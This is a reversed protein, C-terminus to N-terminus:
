HRPITM